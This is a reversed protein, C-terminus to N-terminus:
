LQERRNFLRNLIEIDRDTLSVFFDRRERVILFDGCISTFSPNPKKDKLRGEEDCVIVLSGGFPITEIYGGVAKQFSRLSNDILLIDISGDTRFCMARVARNETREDKGM